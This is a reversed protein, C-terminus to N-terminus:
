GGGDQGPSPSSTAFDLQLRIKELLVRAAEDEGSSGGGGRELYLGLEIWADDWQQAFYHLLALHLQAEQCGPLLALRKRVAAMARRLNHYGTAEVSPSLASQVSLPTTTVPRGGRGGGLARAWHSYMLESLLASLLERKSSAVTLEEETVGFM